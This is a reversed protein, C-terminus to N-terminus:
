GDFGRVVLPLYIAYPHSAKFEVRALVDEMAQPDPAALVLDDMQSWLYANLDSSLQDSLDFRFISANALQEAAARTNPDPYSSLDASRNPSTGGQAIWIEAADTTILFDILQRAEATDSFVMAADGGGMVANTYTGGIDPFPFIAYDTGATHTPPPFRNQIESNIWSAQRHLYAQPPDEFPPFIAEYFHTNLTGSKGGLQYGEEGFIEGFYAMSSIVETHTWPIAHTVLDDYVDPGASRLLIDEFWDTLPWGTAAEHQNGVSWPPTGTTNSIQESLTIMETWTTPTMWGNSTFETPDYWVLSKNNANFWVGYLAGDVTGLDIWTSAYNTSLVTSSIFGNMDVLAGADGLEALMGPWPVLAVDPCNGQDSCNRFFSQPCPDLQEYQASFGTRAIFENLVPQFQGSSICGSISLTQVPAQEPATPPEAWVRQSVLGIELLALM